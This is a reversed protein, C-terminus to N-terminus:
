TRELLSRLTRSSVKMSSVEARPMETKTEEVCLWWSDLGRARDLFQARDLVQRCEGYSWDLLRSTVITLITGFGIWCCRGFKVARSGSFELYPPCAVADPAKETRRCQISLCPIHQNRRLSRKFPPARNNVERAWRLGDTSRRRHLSSKTGKRLPTPRILPLREQAVPVCSLSPDSRRSLSKPCVRTGSAPGKASFTVPPNSQPSEGTEVLALIVHSAPVTCSLLWASPM